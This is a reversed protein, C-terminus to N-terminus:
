MPEGEIQERATVNEQLQLQVQNFADENALSNEVQKELKSCKEVLSAVEKEWFEEKQHVRQQNAKIDDELHAIQESFNIHYLLSFFMVCVGNWLVIFTAVCEGKLAAESILLQDVAELQRQLEEDKQQFLVEFNETAEHRDLQTQLVKNHNNLASVQEAPVSAFYTLGASHIARFV